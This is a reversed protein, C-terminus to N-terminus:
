RGGPTRRYFLGNFWITALSYAVRRFTLRELRHLALRVPNRRRGRVPRAGAPWSYEAAPRGYASNQVPRFRGAVVM